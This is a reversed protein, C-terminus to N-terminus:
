PRKSWLSIALDRNRDRILGNRPPAQAVQRCNKARRSPLFLRLFPHQLRAETFSYLIGLQCTTQTGGRHGRDETEGLEVFSSIRKIKCHCKARIPETKVGSGHFSIVKREVRDQRSSENLSPIVVPYINWPM